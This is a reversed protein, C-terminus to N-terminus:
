APGPHRAEPQPLAIWGPLSSPEAMPSRPRHHWQGPHHHGIGRDVGNPHLQRVAATPDKSSPCSVRGGGLVTTVFEGDDVRDSAIVTLAAANPWNCGRVRRGCRSRRHHVREPGYEPRAIGGIASRNLGNLPFPPPRTAADVGAPAIALATASFSPTSPRPGACCRDRGARDRDGTDRAGVGAGPGVADVTGAVDWGWGSTVGRRLHPSVPGSWAAVDAPNLAAADWRSGSRSCARSRCTSRPWRSSRPPDRGVSVCSSAHRTREENTTPV